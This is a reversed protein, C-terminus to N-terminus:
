LDGLSMQTFSEKLELMVFIILSSEGHQEGVSWDEDNDETVNNYVLRLCCHESQSELNKLSIEPLDPEM